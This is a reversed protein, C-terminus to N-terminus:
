APAESDPALSIRIGTVGPREALWRQLQTVEGMDLDTAPFEVRGRGGPHIEAADCHAGTAVIAQLFENRQEESM